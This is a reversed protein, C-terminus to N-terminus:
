VARAAVQDAARIDGHAVVTNRGRRKAMYLAADAAEILDHPDQGAVPVVAAIGVSVTIHGLPASDHPLELAAISARIMEGVEAMRASDADPLMLSFEEGGYRASFGTVENAIGILAAGVKTLCADGDLHGYTDNYTKFHDIDVMALGLQGNEREAKM